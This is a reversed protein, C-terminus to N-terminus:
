GTHEYVDAGSPGIVQRKIPRGAPPHDDDLRVGLEAGGMSCEPVLYQLDVCAGIVVLIVNWEVEDIGM